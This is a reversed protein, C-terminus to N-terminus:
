GSDLDRNMLSKIHDAIECQEAVSSSVASGGSGADDAAPSPLAVDSNYIASFLKLEAPSSVTTPLGFPVEWGSPAPIQM